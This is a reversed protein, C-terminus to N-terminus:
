SEGEKRRPIWPICRNVKKCYDLYAKGYLAALWKEETRKVMVMMLLHYVPCLLLLLLNGSWLLLGWMLFMIASYIPNRVRAYAGSTVLENRRIHQAIKTTIVANVWLLAAAIICVAALLKLPLVVPRFRLVPLMGFQNLLLAALTLAFMLAAYYPGIGYQSLPKKDEM